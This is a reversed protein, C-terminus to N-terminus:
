SYDIQSEGINIIYIEKDWDQYYIRIQRDFYIYDTHFLTGDYSEWTEIIKDAKGFKKEIQNKPIKKYVELLNNVITFEVIIKEKIRYRAGTDMGVWGGNEFVSAIRDKLEFEFEIGNVTYFTKGDRWSTSTTNEPPKELGTLVIGSYNIKQITDGLHINGLTLLSTPVTTEFLISPNITIETEM